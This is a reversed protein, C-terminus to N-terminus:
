KSRTFTTEFQKSKRNKFVKENPKGFSIPDVDISSIEYGQTMDSAVVVRSGDCQSLASKYFRSKGTDPVKAEPANTHVLNLMGYLRNPGVPGIRPRHVSLSFTASNQAITGLTTFNIFIAHERPGYPDNRAKTNHEEIM